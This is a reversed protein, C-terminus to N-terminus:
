EIRLFEEIGCTEFAHFSNIAPIRAKAGRIMVIKGKGHDAAFCGEGGAHCGWLGERYVPDSEWL